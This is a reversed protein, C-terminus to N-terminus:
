AHTVLNVLPEAEAFGGARLKEFLAKSRQWEAPGYIVNGFEPRGREFGPRQWHEHRQTLDRRQWFVGLRKACAQLHEDAFMHFFDGWLPGRGGFARLCWERGMWPSGAIREIIRGKADAWDDGCPQM